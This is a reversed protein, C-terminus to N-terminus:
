PRKEAADAMRLIAAALARAEEPRMALWSSGGWKFSSMLLDQDSAGVRESFARLVVVPANGEIGASNWEVINAKRAQVRFGIRYDRYRQDDRLVDEAELLLHDHASM